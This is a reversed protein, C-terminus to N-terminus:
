YDFITELDTDYNQNGVYSLLVILSDDHRPGLNFPGMLVGRYLVVTSNWPKLPLRLQAAM